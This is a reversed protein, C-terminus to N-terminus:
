ASIVPLLFIFDTALLSAQRYLHEVLRYNTDVNWCAPLWWVGPSQHLGPHSSPLVSFCKGPSARANTVHRATRPAPSRCSRKAPNPSLSFSRPTPRPFEEGRPPLVRRRSAVRRSPVGASFLTIATSPFFSM